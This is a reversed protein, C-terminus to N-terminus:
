AARDILGVVFFLVVWGVEFCVSERLRRSFVSVFPAVRVVRVRGGGFQWSGISGRSRGVGPIAFTVRRESNQLSLRLFVFLTQGGGGLAARLRLGNASPFFDRSFAIAGEVRTSSRWTCDSFSVVGSFATQKDNAM